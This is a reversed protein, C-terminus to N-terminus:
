NRQFMTVKRGTAIRLRRLLRVRVSEDTRSRSSSSSGVKYDSPRLTETTDCAVLLQEGFADQLSQIDLTSQRM